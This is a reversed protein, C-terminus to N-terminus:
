SSMFSDLSKQLSLFVQKRLSAEVSKNKASGTLLFIHISPDNVRTFLFAADCLFANGDIRLNIDEIKTDGHLPNKPLNDLRVAFSIVSIDVIHGKLIGCDIVCSFPYRKEELYVRASSRREGSARKNLVGMTLRILEEEESAAIIKGSAAKKMKKLRKDQPDFSYPHISLSQLAAYSRIDKIYDVTDQLNEDVDPSIFLHANPFAGFFQFAKERNTLHYAHHGEVFCREVLSLHQSTQPCMFFTM